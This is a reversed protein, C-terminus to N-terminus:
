QGQRDPKVPPDDIPHVVLGVIEYPEEPRVQLHIAFWAGDSEVYASLDHDDRSVFHNMEVSSLGASVENRFGMYAELPVATQFSEHFAEEYHRRAVEQNSGRTVQVWRTLARGAPSDPVTSTTLVPEVAALEFRSDLLHFGIDDISSQANSLVVVGKGSKKDFGVFSHYGGTEGNHWTITLGHQTTNLWGLGVQMGDPGINERPEHTIAMAPALETATLGLNAAVLRLLDNVTSRLAGAGALTPIDWNAAPVLSATPVLGFSHGAALRARMDTSLTIATDSMELPGTIREKVLSEYDLGSVEALIHGLLGVALNSYEVTEGPARALEHASLYDYMRQVSYDAYPNNPDAPAFNDPMRPLGSTHTTLHYLTIPDGLDGPMDVSDPLYSAARAEIEVEASGDMDALLIATFVKSVSGIEFVTDGDPPLPDDLGRRGHGVVTTGDADVLGVVIGVSRKAREIRDALIARIQDETAAASPAALLASLLLLTAFLRFRHDPM